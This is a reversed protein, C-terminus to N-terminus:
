CFNNGNTIQFRKGFETVSSNLKALSAIYENVVHSRVTKRGYVIIISNNHSVHYTCAVYMALNYSISFAHKGIVDLSINSEATLNPTTNIVGECQYVTGEEATTLLSINYFDRYLMSSNTSSSASAGVIMKIEVGDSTWIIDISSSIGRVTTM